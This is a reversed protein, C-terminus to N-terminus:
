YGNKDKGNNGIRKNRKDKKRWIFEDMAVADPYPNTLKLREMMTEMNGRMRDLNPKHASIPRGHKEAKQMAQESTRADIHFMKTVKNEIFQGVHSSFHTSGKISVEVKVEFTQVNVNNGM